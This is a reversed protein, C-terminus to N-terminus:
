RNLTCNNKLYNNHIEVQANYKDIRSSFSEKDQKYSTLKSNYENVTENYQNIEYQSSYESIYSNDIENKLRDLENSKHELANRAINLQQETETPALEVAKDYDYRSCRYEGIVYTDNNSSVQKVSPVTYSSTNNTNNTNTSSGDDSFIGWVFFLIVGGIILINKWNYKQIEDKKNSLNHKSASITKKSSDEDDLFDLDFDLKKDKNKTM